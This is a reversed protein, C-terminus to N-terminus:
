PSFFFSRKARMWEVRSSTRKSPKVWHKENKNDMVFIVLVRNKLSKKKRCSVTHSILLYLFYYIFLCLLSFALWFLLLLMKLYYLLPLHLFFVFRIFVSCLSFRVLIGSENVLLIINVLSLMNTSFNTLNLLLLLSSFAL